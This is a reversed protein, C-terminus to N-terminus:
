DIYGILNRRANRNPLIGEQIVSTLHLNRLHGSFTLRLSFLPWYPTGKLKPVVERSM